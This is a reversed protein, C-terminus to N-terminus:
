CTASSCTPAAAPRSPSPLPTASSSLHLEAPAARQRRCPPCLARPPALAPLTPALCRTRLFTKLRRPQGNVLVQGGVTGTYTHGALVDLLTTQAVLPYLSPLLLPTASLPLLASPPRGRAEQWRGAWCLRCSAAGCGRTHAGQRRRERGHHGPVARQSCRRVCGESHGPAPRRRAAARHLHARRVRRGHRRRPQEAAAGPAAHRSHPPGPVASTCHAAPCATHARAPPPPPLSPLVCEAERVLMGASRQQQDLM